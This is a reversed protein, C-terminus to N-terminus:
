VFKYLELNIFGFLHTLFLFVVFLILVIKDHNNACTLHLSKKKEWRRCQCINKNFINQLVNVYECSAKVLYCM